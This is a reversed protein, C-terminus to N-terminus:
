KEREGKEREKEGSRQRTPQSTLGVVIHSTPALVRSIFSFVAGVVLVLWGGALQQQKEEKFLSWHLVPTSSSRLPLREDDVLSM